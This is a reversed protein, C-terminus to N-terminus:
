ASPLGILWASACIAAMAWIRPALSAVRLMPSKVSQPMSTTSGQFPKYSGQNSGGPAVRRGFRFNRNCKGRMTAKEYKRSGRYRVYLSVKSM